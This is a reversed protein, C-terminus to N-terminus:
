PWQVLVETELVERYARALKEFGKSYPHMENAWDGAVLTRRLDAHYFISRPRGANATSAVTKLADNFEDILKHGIHRQEAANVIGAAEMAPKFWPGTIPLWNYNVAVDSPFLYDYGHVLIPVRGAVMAILRAYQDMLEELKAQWAAVNFYNPGLPPQFLATPWGKKGDIFDNGGGDFLLCRPQEKDIAPYFEGTDLIEALTDGSQEYRRIAYKESDDIYDIMNRYIPYGFWSDGECLLRPLGAGKRQRYKRNKVSQRWREEAM